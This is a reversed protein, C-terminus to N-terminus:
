CRSMASIDEYAHGYKACHTLWESLFVNLQAKENRHFMHANPYPYRGDPCRQMQYSLVEAMRADHYVRVLLQPTELWDGLPQNLSIKLTMTYKFYETVEIVVTGLNLTENMLQFSCQSVEPSAPLLRMLRAYNGECVAHLASLDVSYRSLMTAKAM